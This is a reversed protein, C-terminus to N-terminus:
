AQIGLPMQSPMVKSDRPWYAKVGIQALPGAKDLIHGKDRTWLEDCRMFRATAIHVGDAGKIGAIGSVWRIDRASTCITQTTQVLRIGSKGSLLVQELFRKLDDPIKGTAPDVGTCEAISITSTYVLMKDQRALRLAERVNWVDLEADKDSPRKAEAKAMETIASAELYIRSVETRPAM